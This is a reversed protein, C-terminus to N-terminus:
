HKMSALLTEVFSSFSLSVNKHEGVTHEWKNLDAGVVKHEGRLM